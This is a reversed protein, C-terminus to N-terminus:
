NNGRLKLEGGTDSFGWLNVHMAYDVETTCSSVLLYLLLLKQYVVLLNDFFYNLTSCVHGSKHFGALRPM